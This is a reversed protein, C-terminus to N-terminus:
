DKKRGNRNVKKTLVITNNLDKWLDEFYDTYHAFGKKGKEFKYTITQQSVYHYWYPGIYLEDDMRWYFDLTMCKYGRVTITGSKKGSCNQNIKDAWAVLDNISKRIQGEPENEEIERQKLFLNNEDPNM